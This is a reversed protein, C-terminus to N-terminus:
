PVRRGAVQGRHGPRARRRRVARGRWDRRPGLVVVAHTRRALSAGPHGAHPAGGRTSPSTDPRTEGARGHGAFSSARSRPKVSATADTTETTETASDHYVSPAIVSRM